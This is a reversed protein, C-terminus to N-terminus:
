KVIMISCPSHVSDIIFENMVMYKGELTRENILIRNEEGVGLTSLIIISTDNHVYKM